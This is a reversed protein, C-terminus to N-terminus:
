VPPMTEAYRATVVIRFQISGPPHCAILTLTRDSSNTPNIVNLDNPNIISTSIVQYRVRVDEASVYVADGIQLENLYRFPATNSTRHGFIAMNAPGGPGATAPWHAPGRNVTPDDIGEGVVDVLGIAPVEIVGPFEPSWAPNPAAGGAIRPQGTFYGAVDVVLHTGSQSFLSLGRTSVPSIVHNAVTHGSYLANMASVVPRVTGAPFAAVYGANRASTLTSNAVIAAATSPVGGNGLVPVEVTWGPGPKIYKGLPNSATRTDLVRVPSLSVFLGDSSPPASESTFYGAVDVIVHGGIQSFVDIAGGAVPVIVQNAVTQRARSVNLNSTSPRAAGAAFVTWFGAPSADVTVNLVAAIADPPVGTLGFRRTGGLALAGGGSRTDAVRTPGLPVFRGSRPTSAAEYYGFVDGVLHTGRQVFMAVAGDAGIQVTVLNAITFNAEPLNVNSATPRGEGSPYVTVFGGSSSETATVNLVVATATAPIGFRGHVGVTVVAGDGPRAGSRTDLLREPKIPVFRAPASAAGAPTAAPLTTVIGGTTGFMLAAVAARTRLGLSWRKM